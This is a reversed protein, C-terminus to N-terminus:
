DANASSNGLNADGDKRTPVNLDAPVKRLHKRMSLGLLVAATMLAVVLWLVMPTNRVASEDVVPTPSPTPGMPTLLLTWARTMM